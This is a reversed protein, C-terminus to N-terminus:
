YKTRYIEAMSATFHLRGTDNWINKCYIEIWSMHTTFIGCDKYYVANQLYSVSHPLNEILHFV